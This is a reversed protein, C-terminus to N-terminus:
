FKQRIRFFRASNNVGSIDTKSIATDHLLSIQPFLRYFDHPQVCCTKDTISMTTEDTTQQLLKVMSMGPPVM